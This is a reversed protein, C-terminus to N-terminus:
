DKDLQYQYPTFSYVTVGTQPLRFLTFSIWISMGASQQEFRNPEDLLPIFSTRLVPNLLQDTLRKKKM